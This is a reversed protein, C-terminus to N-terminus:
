SVRCPSVGVAGMAEEVMDRRAVIRGRLGKESWLRLRGVLVILLM